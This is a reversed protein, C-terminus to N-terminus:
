GSGRVTPTCVASFDFGTWTYAQEAVQGLLVELPEVTKLAGALDTVAGLSMRLSSTM